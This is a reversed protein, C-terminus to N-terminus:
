YDDEHGSEAIARGMPDSIPNMWDTIQDDDDDYKNRDKYYYQEEEQEELYQEIKKTDLLSAVEEEHKNVHSAFVVNYLFEGIFAGIFFVFIAPILLWFGHEQYVGSFLYLMVAKLEEIEVGDFLNVGIADKTFWYFVGVYTFLGFTFATLLSTFVLKKM